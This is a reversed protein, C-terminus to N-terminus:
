AGMSQAVTNTAVFSTKGLDNMSFEIRFAALDRSLSTRDYSGHIEGVIVGVRSLWDPSGRFVDEEAGEIDIKLLDIHEWGLSQMLAPVTTTKVEIVSVSERDSLGHCDAAGMLHFKATGIRDSAAARIITIQSLGNWNKTLEIMSANAPEPEVCAIAAGPFKAAFFAATYGVNGGLDLITRPRPGSTQYPKDGFIETLVRIDSHNSRLPLTLTRDECHVRVRFTAIPLSPIHAQLRYLYYSSLYRIRDSGTLGVTRSQTLLKRAFESSFM